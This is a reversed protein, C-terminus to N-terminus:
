IPDYINCNNIGNINVAVTILLLLISEMENYFRFLAMSSARQIMQWKM